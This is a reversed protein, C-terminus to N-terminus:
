LMYVGYGTFYNLYTSSFVNMGLELNTLLDTARTITPLNSNTNATINSASSVFTMGSVFTAWAQNTLQMFIIM